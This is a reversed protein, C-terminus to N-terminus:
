LLSDQFVDEDQRHKIEKDSNGIGPNLHYNFTM